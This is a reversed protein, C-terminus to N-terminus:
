RAKKAVTAIVPRAADKLLKGSDSRTFLRFGIALNPHMPVKGRAAWQRITNRHVGLYEPTKATHLHNTSQSM